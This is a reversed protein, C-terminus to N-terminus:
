TSAASEKKYLRKMSGNFFTYRYPQQSQPVTAAGYIFCSVTYFCNAVSDSFLIDISVAAPNEGFSIGGSNDCSIINIAVTKDPKIHRAGPIECTVM